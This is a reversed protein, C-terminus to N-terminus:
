HRLPGTVKWTTGYKGTNHDMFIPLHPPTFTFVTLVFGHLMIFVLGAMSAANALKKATLIKFSVVQCLVVGIVYSLIDLFLIESKTLATYSYFFGVIFLQLVLIGVAKAAFFNNVKYRIYWYEILSYFGLSWFGLKLHEWVSENVASFIGVIPSYGSWEYTFHLLSGVSLLFFAGIVQWRVAIKRTERDVVDKGMDSKAGRTAFLESWVGSLSQLM